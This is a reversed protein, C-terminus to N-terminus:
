AEIERDVDDVANGAQMRLARVDFFPQLALDDLANVVRV